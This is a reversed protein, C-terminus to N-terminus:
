LKQLSIAASGKNNTYFTSFLWPFFISTDNVYVFVEGDSRATFEASWLSKDDPSQTFAPLHEELGTSGVRQLAQGFFVHALRVPAIPVDLWGYRKGYPAASRPKGHPRPRSAAADSVGVAALREVIASVQTDRTPPTAV